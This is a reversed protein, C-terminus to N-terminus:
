RIEPQFYKNIEAEIPIVEKIKNNKVLVKLILSKMTEKSFGQDFVFNGLSYAIYGTKYKEIPQIVHSHHGVVLDAGTDIAVQSILIQFSTPESYYEEGYHFSVIVSPKLRSEQLRYPM